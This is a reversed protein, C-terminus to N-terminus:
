SKGFVKAFPDTEEPVSDWDYEPQEPQEPRDPAQQKSSSSNPAPSVGFLKNLFLTVVKSGIHKGAHQGYLEADDPITFSKGFELLHPAVSAEELALLEAEMISNGDLEVATLMSKGSQDYDQWTRELEDAEQHLWKAKAAVAAQLTSFTGLNYRVGDAMFRVTIRSGLRSSSLTFGKPLNTVPSNTAQM